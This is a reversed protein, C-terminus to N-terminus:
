VALQGFPNSSTCGLLGSGLLWLAPPIPVATGGFSLADYGAFDGVNVNSTFTVSTFSTTDVVGFFISNGGPLVSGDPSTLLLRDFSGTNNTVSLTGPGTIDGWDNIDIGFSTIATDFTFVLLTDLSSHAIARSGETIFQSGTGTVSMVSGTNGSLRTGTASFGSFNVTEADTFFDNFGEFSLGTTATDFLVRDSYITAANATFTILSLLCACVAGLLHLKKM